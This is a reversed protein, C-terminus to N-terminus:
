AARRRMEDAADLLPDIHRRALLAPMAALLFNFARYMVVAALAPALPERVWYLAYSMLVETVGAGALPLSRRTAAYGTAYALIVKGLDLQLGFTRLAAYFATIDAAWYLATGVWAGWYKIPHSLLEHLVGVGDLLDGLWARRRGRIRALRDRRGPASAWLALGLGVPVAIAWPWLLSPLIDEGQVLFVISVVCTTPALLAWELMGLGLVRVRASREDEHLAHLAQKDVGFGGALHFPGFGAAVIRVAMPVKLPAHGHVCAVSRYALAYAPYTVLEAAAILAIWGPLIEDFARGIADAGTIHAILLAGAAAIATAFASM